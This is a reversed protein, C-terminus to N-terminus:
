VEGQQRVEGEQSGEEHKRERSRLEDLKRSMEEEQQQRLKDLKQDPTLEDWKRFEEQVEKLQKRLCEEPTNGDAPIDWFYPFGTHSWIIHGLFEDDRDPFYERAVKLASLTPTPHKSM